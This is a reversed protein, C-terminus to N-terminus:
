SVAITPGVFAPPTQNRDVIASDVDDVRLRIRFPSGSPSAPLAAFTFQATDSATAFDHAPTEHTGLILSVRQGPQLWPTCTVSLTLGGQGDRVAAAPAGLIRPAIALPVANTLVTTPDGERSWVFELQVGYLGAPYVQPQAAPLTATVQGTAPDFTAALSQQVGLRDNRLLLRHQSGQLSEGSIALIDGLQAAPGDPLAIADIRPIRPGLGAQPLIGIERKTAPDVGGRALVPLPSTAPKDSDILLVSVTYGMSVHFRAQMATWLKTLEETGLYEPTIRIQEAQQDLACGALAAYVPGAAGESVGAHALTRKIAARTLVPTEHLVQMALGLLADAELGTNSFASVLYHLDLALPPRRPPNSGGADRTPLGGNVYGTNPAVRYMFLNLQTVEQGDMKVQDPPLATVHIDPGILDSADHLAAELQERLVETVGAIALANTM